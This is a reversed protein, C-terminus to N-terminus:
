NSNGCAPRDGEIRCNGAGLSDAQLFPGISASAGDRTACVQGTWCRGNRKAAWRVHAGIKDAEWGGGKKAQAKVSISSIDKDKALYGKRAVDYIDIKMGKESTSLNITWEPKDDARATVKGTLMLTLVMAATAIIGQIPKRELTRLM